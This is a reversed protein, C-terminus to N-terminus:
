SLHLIMIAIIIGGIIIGSVFISLVLINAFGNSTISLIDNLGMKFNSENIINNNYDNKLNNLNKKIEYKKLYTPMQKEYDLYIQTILGKKIKNNKEFMEIEYDDINKKIFYNFNAFDKINGNLLTPINEDKFMSKLKNYIPRYELSPIYNFNCEISFKRMLIELIVEKIYTGKKESYKVYEDKYELSEETTYDIISSLLEKYFQGVIYEEFEIKKNNILFSIEEISYKRFIDNFDQQNINGILYPTNLCENYFKLNEEVRLLFRDQNIDYKVFEKQMNNSIFFNSKFNLNLFKEKKINNLYNSVTKLFLNDKNYSSALISLLQQYQQINYNNSM